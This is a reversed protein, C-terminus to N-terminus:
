PAAALKPWDEIKVRGVFAAKGHGDPHFILAEGEALDRAESAFADMINALHSVIVTDTGADPAVAVQARLSGAAEASRGAESLEDYTHPEPFQAMQVTELARFTTSSLVKGVKIHMRRFADGMARASARGSEDLQRERSVNAPEAQAATPQTPPSSAHRMLIVYGGGALAAALQKGQLQSAASAAGVAFASLMFLTLIRRTAPQM